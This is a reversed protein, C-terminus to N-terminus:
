IKNETEKYNILIQPLSSVIKPINLKFYTKCPMGEKSISIFGLKEFKALVSNLKTLKIGVREKFQKKSHYFKTINNKEKFYDNLMLLYEFLVREEMTNFFNSNYNQFNIFNIARFNFFDKVSKDQKEIGREINRVKTKIDIGLFFKNLFVLYEIIDEVPTNQYKRENEYEDTIGTAFRVAKIEENKLTDDNFMDWLELEWQNSISHIKQLLQNRAKGKEKFPKKIGLEKMFLLQTKTLINSMNGSM